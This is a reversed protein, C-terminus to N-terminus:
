PDVTSSRGAPRRSHAQDGFCDRGPLSPLRQIAGGCRRSARPARSASARAAAPPVRGLRHIALAADARGPGQGGAEGRRWHYRPLRQGRGSGAIYAAPDFASSLFRGTGADAARHLSCMTSAVGALRSRRCQRSHCGCRGIGTTAAQQEAHMTGSARRRDIIESPPSPLASPPGVQPLRGHDSERCAAMPLEGLQRRPEAPGDQTAGYRTPAMGVRVRHPSDDADCM